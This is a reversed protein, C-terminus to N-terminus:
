GVIGSVDLLFLQRGQDQYPSDICVTRGDRSSRPHTDCRYEGTYIPPSPFRGLDTRRGTPVHYLYVTQVRNKDPYTDNLIWEGTEGAPLYTNHGNVTMVGPGVPTVEDTRDAFLYVGAPKGQPQTWACVHTPDRWIFHSTEGSPDLVFPNSGDADATLMRTRFGGKGQPRWRHLFVFRGGDTNFLLHNFWHKADAMDPTREGFAAIQAISLLLQAEGTALDIRSVGADDPRLIDANPDPLGAYGYGPRVDNLRRFDTTIATKGDPSLAYIPHPITRGKGTAVDLLRAVFRDAARDNWVITSDTGPVWQLMCGQQWGWARSEGLGIWKDGDATDIMGVRIADDATPSRHEFPTENSLVYRGTPDFQQKDYYGFWHHRPGHTIVRVPVTAEFRAAVNGAAGVPKPLAVSCCAAASAALFERRTPM